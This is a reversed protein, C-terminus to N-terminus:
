AWRMSLEASRRQWSASGRELRDWLSAEAEPGGHMRLVEAATRRIEPDESDLLEAVVAELDASWYIDATRTLREPRCASYPGPEPAELAERVLATGAAPDVRLFYALFAPRWCTPLDLFGQRRILTEIRPRLQESGFRAVLFALEDLGDYPDAHALRDVVSAELEAPLRVDPLLGLVEQSLRPVPRAIDELVLERAGARGPLQKRIPYMWARTLARSM